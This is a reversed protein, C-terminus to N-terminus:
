RCFASKRVWAQQFLVQGLQQQAGTLYLSPLGDIEMQRCLQVLFQIPSKIQTRVARESYFERSLFIERLLPKVEFRAEAFIRGLAAVAKDGPKEYVFYEWLKSPLYRSAAEQRFIVDIVDAGDFAGSEGLVTKQGGDWQRARHSVEGTLRNLQYGTFARAAEKIDEEGYHGEGLTFLELVERAFNENPKGKRSSAVDLYLIMAPDKIVAHTLAKFNGCAQTRFLANQRYIFDPNRVKQLSSVFHDHWFLVMKERLPAETRVMRNFWWQTLDRGARNRERNARQNLARRKRDAEEESLGRSERRLAIFQQRLEAAAEASPNEWDEGSSGGELLWDVAKTRGLAHVRRIEEPNGGFGARNLLHGAELLTWSGKAKPLM